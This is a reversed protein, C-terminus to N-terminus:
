EGRDGASPKELDRAVRFGVTAVRTAPRLSHRYAARLRVPEDYWSGGRLVRYRCPVENEGISVIRENQRAGIANRYCDAVWEWVNGHVNKLGFPNAAFRGVPVPRRRFHEPTPAKVEASDLRYRGDFNADGPTVEAGQWFATTRGARAAYEWEVESPLRYARGTERALWAVYTRADNWSVNIVPQNGKGWGNDGPVYQCGSAEICARWEDFSVEHVGIAFPTAIEVARPLVENARRGPEHPPSGIQGEGKPVVVLEPCRPCDRLRTGPAPPGTRRAAAEADRRDSGAFYFEEVLGDRTWPFQANASAKLVRRRVARFMLVAPQGPRVIETALARAYANNDLAVNGPETAYAIMVGGREKEARLGKTAAKTASTFPTNRCADIVIFSSRAGAAAIGEIVDGLKLALFPLQANHTVPAEVPIIYNDGYKDVAAGHGSYYFFAAADTGAETITTIFTAIAAQLRAKDADKVHVVDFSVKALADAILRGDQHPNDLRGIPGSYAQNTVILAHRVKAKEARADPAIISVALSIASLAISLTLIGSVKKGAM